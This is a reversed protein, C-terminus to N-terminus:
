CYVYRIYEKNKIIDGYNSVLKRKRVKISQYRKFVLNVAKGGNQLNDEFDIELVAIGM